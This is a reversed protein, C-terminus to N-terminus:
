LSLHPCYQYNIAAKPAFMFSLVVFTLTKDAVTSSSEYFEGLSQSAPLLRKCALVQEMPETLNRNLNRVFQQRQDELNSEDEVVKEM